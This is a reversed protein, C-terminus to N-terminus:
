GSLGVANTRSELWRSIQLPDVKHLNGRLKIWEAGGSSRDIDHNGPVVFLRSHDLRLHGLLRELFPTIAEFEEAKGWDVLDGTFCVFDISGEECLVDLNQRWAEGLVRHRRFKEQERPGREHLDSIHLLTFTHSM